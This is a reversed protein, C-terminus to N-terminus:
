GSGPGVDGGHGVRHPEAALAPRGLAAGTAATEPKLSDIIDKSHKLYAEMDEGPPVVTQGTLGHQVANLDSSCAGETKAPASLWLDNAKPRSHGMISCTLL